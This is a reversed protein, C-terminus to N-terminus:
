PQLHPDPRQRICEAGPEENGDTNGTNGNAGDTDLTVVQPDDVGTEGTDEAQVSVPGVSTNLMAIVLAMAVLRKWAHKCIRKLRM